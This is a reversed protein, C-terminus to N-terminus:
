LADDVGHFDPGTYPLGADRASLVACPLPWAIALAPDDHRIGGEHEPAYAASHLYVMECDDSLSQFGHACGPPIHLARGNDASLELAVHRLFTPSNRRLDVAVDYIRGKLCRVIKGELAPANQYHLGRVTGQQATVSHNIQVPAFRALGARELADACFMRMFSGREDARRSSELVAVGAIDTPTVTISM